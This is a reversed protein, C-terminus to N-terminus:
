THKANSHTFLIVKNLLSIARGDDIALAALKIGEAVSPVKDAVWLAYAANVITIDRYASKKGSLVERVIDANQKADGGRFDKLPLQKFGLDSPSVTNQKIKGDQILYLQTTSSLSIEDLGDDSTVILVREYPLKGAVKALLQASKVSPVGIIQRKVGAPNLFPGLFNFVTRFGLARRVPMINKLLPHFLPAFLFVMGTEHLTEAAKSATLQINVGLAELVDASGCRSSANRNGHKAVPIGAAAVVLAVTTSINFTGQGDGGTGCTDIAQQSVPVTLM